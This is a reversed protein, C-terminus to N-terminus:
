HINFKQLQKQKVKLKYPFTHFYRYFKILIYNGMVNDNLAEEQLFPALNIILVSLLMSVIHSHSLVVSTLVDMIEVKKKDELHFDKQLNGFWTANWSTINREKRWLFLKLHKKLPFFFRHSHVFM